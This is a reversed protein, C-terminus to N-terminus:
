IKGGYEDLRIGDKLETAKWVYVKEEEIYTYAGPYPHTLARVLNYIERPSKSWDIMGDEPKRSNWYRAKTEDQRKRRVTGNQIQRLVSLLLKPFIENVKNRVDAITDVYRIDYSREALIDGSDFEKAVCHITCAGQTEGNIIAWNMVSAGRYEPLKGAHLNITGKKPIQILEEPLRRNYGCLIYVDADIEEPQYYVNLGKSLAYKPFDGSWYKYKDDEKYTVVSAVDIWNHKLLERLCLIARDKSGFFVIIM